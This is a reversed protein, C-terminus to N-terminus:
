VKNHIDTAAGATLLLKVTESHGKGAAYHLATYGMQPCHVTSCSICRKIVSAAICNTMIGDSWSLFLVSQMVRHLRESWQLISIVSYALISSTICTFFHLRLLIVQLAAFCGEDWTGLSNAIAVLVILLKEFSSAYAQHLM